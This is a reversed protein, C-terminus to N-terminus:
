IGDQAGNPNHSVATAAKHNRLKARYAASRQAGTLKPKRADKAAGIKYIKVNHRGRIDADWKSIYAAGVKHMTRTYNLVTVYHLGTEEALEACTLVGPIMEAVLKATTYSNIKVMAKRSKARGEATKSSIM